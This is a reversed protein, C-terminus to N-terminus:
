KIRKQKQLALRVTLWVACLCSNGETECSTESICTFYYVLLGSYKWRASLHDRRVGVAWKGRRGAWGGAYVLVEAPVQAMIPGGVGRAPRPSPPLRSRVSHTVCVTHPFTELFFFHRRPPPPKTDTEGPTHPVPSDILPSIVHPLASIRPEM